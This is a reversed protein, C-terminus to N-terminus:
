ATRVSQIIPVIDVGLAETISILEIIDLRREGKEYKAVFSQHKKLKDALAQQTLGVHKRADILSACLAQQRRSHITKRM